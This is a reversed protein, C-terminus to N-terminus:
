RSMWEAFAGFTERAGRVATDSIESRAGQAEAWQGFERWRRGTADGYGHFFKGGREPTVGLKERFQRSIVQGGLTSGELVYLAGVAAGFDEVGPLTTARPWSQLETQSTGLARLDERLWETKRRADFDWGAGSWDAATGLRAELPEYLTYFRRLLARYDDETRVREFVAM